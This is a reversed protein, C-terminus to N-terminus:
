DKGKNQVKADPHNKLFQDKYITEGAPRGLAPGIRWDTGRILNVFVVINIENGSKAKLSETQLFALTKDILLTDIKLEAAPDLTERVTLWEQVSGTNSKLKGLAKEDGSKLHKFFLAVTEHLTAPKPEAVGALNLFERQYTLDNRRVEIQMNALVADTIRIDIPQPLEKWHDIYARIMAVSPSPDRSEDKEIIEAIVPVTPEGLRILAIRAEATSKIMDVLWPIAKKGALM